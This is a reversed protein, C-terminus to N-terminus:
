GIFFLKFYELRLKTSSAFDKLLSELYGSKFSKCGHSKIGDTSIVFEVALALM